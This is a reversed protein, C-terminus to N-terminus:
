KDKKKNGFLVDLITGNKKGLGGGHPCRFKGVDPNWSYKRHCKPCIKWEPVMTMAVVGGVNLGIQM